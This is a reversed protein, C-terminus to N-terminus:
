QQAMETDEGEEGAEEEQEEAEAAGEVEEVEVDVAQGDTSYTRILEFIDDFGRSRAEDVPTKGSSNIVAASAGSDMLAKVVQKHGNLCAWHLPTNGEANKLVASAGAALLRAIVHHHGNAAAMHMATRGFEDASDVPVKHQLAAEVDEMDGYRAGDVLLEALEEETPAAM